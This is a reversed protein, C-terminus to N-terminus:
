YYQKMNFADLQSLEDRLDYETPQFLCPIGVTENMIETQLPKDLEFKVRNRNIKTKLSKNVKQLKMMLM